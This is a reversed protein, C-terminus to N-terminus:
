SFGTYSKTSPYVTEDTTGTLNDTDATGYEGNLKAKKHIVTYSTNTNANYKPEIDTNSTIQFALPNNTNGNLIPNNSIWSDFTYGQKESAKITVETGDNFETTNSPSLIDANKVFITYKPTESSEDESPTQAESPKTSPTIYSTQNSSSYYYDSNNASKQDEEKKDEKNDEDKPKEPKPDTKQTPTLEPQPTVEGSDPQTPTEPEKNVFTLILFPASIITLLVVLTSALHRDIKRARIILAISAAILCFLIFWRLAGFFTSASVLVLYQGQVPIKVGSVHKNYM